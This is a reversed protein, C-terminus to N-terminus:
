SVARGLRPREFLAKPDITQRAPEIPPLKTICKVKFSQLRFVLFLEDLVSGGNRFMHSLVLKQIYPRPSIGHSESESYVGSFGSTDGGELPQGSRVSYAAGPALQSASLAAPRPSRSTVSFLCLAPPLFLEDLFELSLEDLFDLSLENSFEFFLEDLLELSLEDM